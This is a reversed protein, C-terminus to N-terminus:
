DGLALPAGCADCPVTALDPRYDSRYYTAGCGDCHRPPDDAAESKRVKLVYTGAWRDGWRQQPTEREHKMIMGPLAIADVAVLLTRKAARLLGPRGGTEAVVRLGFMSKFVTTGIASGVFSHVLEAALLGEEFWAESVLFGTVAAVLFGDLFAAIARLQLVSPPQGRALKEVDSVVADCSGRGRGTM